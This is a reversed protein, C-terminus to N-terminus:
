TDAASPAAKARAQAQKRDTYCLCCDPRDACLEDYQRLYYGLAFGWRPKPGRMGALRLNERTEPLIDRYEPEGNKTGIQERLEGATESKSENLFRLGSEEGDGVREAIPRWVAGTAWQYLRSLSEHLIQSGKPREREMVPPDFELGAAAAEELMWHFTIRGNEGGIDGHCGSFWVQKVSDSSGQERGADACWLSPLFAARKEDIALAQRATTVHSSLRTDHFGWRQRAIWSRPGVVPVGLAGVTDWVGVFRLSVCEVPLANLKSRYEATEPCEPHHEDRYQKFAARLTWRDLPPRILGIKRIM